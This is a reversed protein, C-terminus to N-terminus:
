VDNTMRQAPEGGILGNVEDLTVYARGDLAERVNPPTIPSDPNVLSAISTSSPVLERSLSLQKTAMAGFKSTVGTANPGPHGSSNVLEHAVPDEGTFLVMPINGAEKAPRTAPNNVAIVAVQHATLDPVVEPASARNCNEAACLRGGM